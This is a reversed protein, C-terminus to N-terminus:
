QKTSHISMVLITFCFGSCFIDSFASPQCLAICGARHDDARFIVHAELIGNRCSECWSLLIPSFCLWVIIVLGM